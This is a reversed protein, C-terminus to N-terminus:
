RLGPTGPGIAADDEFPRRRTRQKEAGTGTAAPCRRPTSGTISTAASTNMSMDIQAAIVSNIRGAMSKLAAMLSGGDNAALDVRANLDGAAIKEAFDRAGAPDGGLQRWLSEVIFHSLLVLAVIVILAGGVTAWLIGHVGSRGADLAAKFSDRANAVAAKVRKDLADHQVQMNKIAGAAESTRGDLMVKSAHTATTTPTSSPGCLPAKQSSARCQRCPM